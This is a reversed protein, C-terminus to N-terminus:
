EEVVNADERVAEHLRKAEDAKALGELLEKSHSGSLIIARDVKVGGGGDREKDIKKTGQLLKVSRDVMQFPHSKALEDDNIVDHIRDVAKVAIAELREPIRQAAREQLRDLIEKRLLAAQPTGLINSVHQKTMGYKTAIDENSMGSTALLVIEQHYLEWKKPVWKTLRAPRRNNGNGNGRRM